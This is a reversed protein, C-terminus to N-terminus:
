KGEGKGVKSKDFFQTLFKINIGIRSFNEIISLGEYAVIM